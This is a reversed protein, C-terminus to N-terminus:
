KSLPCGQPGERNNCIWGSPMITENFSAGEFSAGSLEADGFNSRWLRSFGLDAGHLEAGLFDAEEAVMYQLQAGSLDTERFRARNATSQFMVVDSLDAHQLEAGDLEVQQWEGGEQKVGKLNAGSLNTGEFGVRDLTAGELNANRMNSNGFEIATLRAGRLDIGELYDSPGTELLLNACVTFPEFLCNKYTLGQANDIFLAANGFDGPRIPDADRAHAALNRGARRPGVRRAAFILKGKVLRPPGLELVATRDDYVLAANPRDALFGFGKWAAVFGRTPFTGSRRAPRDSFWVVDRGLGGLVLRYGGRRAPRLSGKGADVVYLVSIKQVTPRQPGRKAAPGRATAGAAFSLAVALALLAVLAQPRPSTVGAPEGRAATRRDGKGGPFPCHLDKWVFCM